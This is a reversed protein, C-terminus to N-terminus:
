ARRYGYLNFTGSEINGSSMLFRIADVDAAALRQGCGSQIRPLGAASVLMGSWYVSKYSAASPSLEFTVTNVFTSPPVIRGTCAVRTFLVLVVAELM